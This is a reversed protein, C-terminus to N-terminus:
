PLPTSRCCCGRWWLGGRYETADDGFWFQLIEACAKPTNLYRDFRHQGRMSQPWNLNQHEAGKGTIEGTKVDRFTETKRFTISIRPKVDQGPLMIVSHFWAANTKPGLSLLGGNPLDFQQVRSPKFMDNERLVYPRQAGLSISVIPSKECLDLTKDKHPGIADNGDKYLLVVLHNFDVGTTKNVRELLSLITPTKENIELVPYRNQDNVPFRYHPMKGDACRKALACKTRSLPKLGREEKGNMHYWQQFPIERLIKEFAEDAEEKSLFEPLLFTDGAGVAKVENFHIYEVNLVQPLLTTDDGFQAPLNNELSM